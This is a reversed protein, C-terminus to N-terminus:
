GFGLLQSLTDRRDAGRQNEEVQRASDGFRLNIDHPDAAGARVQDRAFEGSRWDVYLGRDCLQYPINPHSDPM